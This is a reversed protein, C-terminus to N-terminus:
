SPSQVQPTWMQWEDMLTMGTGVYLHLAAKNSAYVGLRAESVGLGAFHQFSALLLARGLGRGRGSRRVAVERIHGYSGYNSLVAAGILVDDERITLVETDTRDLIRASWMPWARESQDPVDLFADHILAYVDRADREPVWRGLSVVSPWEPEPLDSLPRRYQLISHAYRLGAAAYRGQREIADASVMMSLPRGIRSAEASLWYLLSNEIAALHLNDPRVFVEGEEALFAAACLADGTWISMATPSRDQVSDPLRLLVDYIDTDIEGLEDLDWHQLLDLVADADGRCPPRSTMGAPLGPVDSAM